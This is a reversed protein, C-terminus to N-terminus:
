VKPRMRMQGLHLREQLKHYTDIELNPTFKPPRMSSIYGMLQWIHVLLMHVLNPGHPKRM